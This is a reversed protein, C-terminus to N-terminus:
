DSSLVMIEHDSVGVGKRRQLSRGGGKLQQLSKTPRSTLEDRLSYSWDFSEEDGEDDEAELSVGDSGGKGDFDGSDSKPQGQAKRKMPIVPKSACARNEQPHKSIKNHRSKSKATPKLFDFELKTNARGALVSQHTLHNLRAAM